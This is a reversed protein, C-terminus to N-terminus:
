PRFGSGKKAELNKGEAFVLPGSERTILISTDYLPASFNGAPPKVAGQIKVV